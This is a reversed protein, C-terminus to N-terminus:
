SEEKTWRKSMFGRKEAVDLCRKYNPSKWWDIIDKCARERQRTFSSGMDCQDAFGCDRKELELCGIPVADITPAKDIREKVWLLHEGLRMEEDTQIDLFLDDANILRM